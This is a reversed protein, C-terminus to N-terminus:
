RLFSKSIFVLRCLKSPLSTRFPGLNSDRQQFSVPIPSVKTGNNIIVMANVTKLLIRARRNAEWQPDGYRRARPRTYGSRFFIKTHQHYPRQVTPDLVAPTLGPIIINKTDYNCKFRKNDFVEIYFKPM